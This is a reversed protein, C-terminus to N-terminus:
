LLDYKYNTIIVEEGVRNTADSNILRMVTIVSKNDLYDKYLEDILPTNHNTMMVYCGRKDLEIFLQALRAHEQYGFDGKAYKTFTTESIADYPSDFFVFDGKSATACTNEFDGCYIESTELLHHIRDMNEKEYLKIRQKSNFPVNFEGKSNVRYLGNFCTKNLFILIASTKVDHIMSKLRDNYQSRTLYYFEKQENPILSNYKSELISLEDLLQMYTETNQITRYCEILPGNIDGIINIENQLGFLVAGGGVFPEFYRNYSLPLASFIQQLLQRKGGAWKLFPQIDGQNLRRNVVTRQDKSEFDVHKVIM